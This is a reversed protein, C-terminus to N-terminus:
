DDKRGGFIKLLLIFLNIFDLYLTLAGMISLKKVTEADHNGEQINKLKQTDYAILGVFVLVGVYTIIKDLMTSEIFMNVVSAIIVGFLVMILMSGFSTLDKKTFYGYASMASFTGATILFTTGISQIDYVLFIVSLTLGNLLAYVFFLMTAKEPSMSFVRASLYWVLGVEGIILVWFVVRNLIITEILKPDNAVYMAALATVLLALAMWGYVKALFTAQTQQKEIAIQDFM